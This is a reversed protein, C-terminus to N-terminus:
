LVVTFGGVSGLIGIAYVIVASSISDNREFFIAMGFWNFICQMAQFASTSDNYISPWDPRNFTKLSSFVATM